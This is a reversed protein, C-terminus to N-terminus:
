VDRFIHENEFAGLATTYKGRTARTEGPAAKTGATRGEARTSGRTEWKDPLPAIRRHNARTHKHRTITVTPHKGSRYQQARFTLRYCAITFAQSLALRKNPQVGLVKERTTPSSYGDTASTHIFTYHTLPASALACASLSAKNHNRANVAAHKHFSRTNERTSPSTPTDKTSSRHQPQRKYM